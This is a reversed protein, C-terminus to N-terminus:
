GHQGGNAMEFFDHMANPGIELSTQGKGHGNEIQQDSPIAELRVRVAENM